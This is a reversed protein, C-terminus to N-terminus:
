TLIYFSARVEVYWNSHSILTHNHNNYYLQQTNSLFFSSIFHYSLIHLILYTPTVPMATYTSGGSTSVWLSNMTYPESFSVQTPQTYCTSGNIIRESVWHEVLGMSHYRLLRHYMTSPWFCQIIHRQTSQSIRSYFLISDGKIFTVSSQCKRISGLLIILQIIDCILISVLGHWVLYTKIFLYLMIQIAYVIRGEMLKM